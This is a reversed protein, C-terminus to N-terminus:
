ARLLLFAMTDGILFVIAYDKQKLANRCDTINSKRQLCNRMIRLIRSSRAPARRWATTSFLGLKKTEFLVNLISRHDDYLIIYKDHFSYVEINTHNSLGDISTIEQM